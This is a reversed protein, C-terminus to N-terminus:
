PRVHSTASSVLCPIELECSGERAERGPPTAKCHLELSIDVDDSKRTLSLTVDDSLDFSKMLENSLSHLDVNRRLVDSSLSGAPSPPAHEQAVKAATDLLASLVDRARSVTPPADDEEDEPKVPSTLRVAQEM